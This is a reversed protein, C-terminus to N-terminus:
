SAQMIREEISSVQAAFSVKKLQEKVRSIAHLVTSHDRRGLFLGIEQLSKDTMQKMLYMCVQRACSIHKLRGESRLDTMTLGYFQAVCQAIHEMHVDAREQKHTRVLVKQALELSISQGTLSAVAIIHILSGELARVSSVVRSALFFAVDDTLTVRHLDAKKKLIAVKTEVSPAHIDTVLGSELRSRLREAIGNLNQPYTDSSFVLQKHADYLSNFIHFFAEQTQDKHAIFQIDDILLVDVDKYKAQFLHIKDFRIAYIFENVFRDATQYILSVRKNSARIENGIAHLLHTKGLGAGGYIFLPNYVQGPRHTVAQAAAYALENSPGVVFTDFRYSANIGQHAKVDAKRALTTKNVAPVSAQADPTPTNQTSFSIAVADVNLLRSLHRQFIPVYHTNLWDQVFQNPAVLYIKKERADWKQLSVAKFWTEVM